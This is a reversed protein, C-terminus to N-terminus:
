HAYSVTRKITINASQCIAKFSSSLFVTDTDILLRRPQHGLSAISSLIEEWASPADSKHKLLVGIIASSTYCVAGLVYRHGCLDPTSTPHLIDLALIHFAHPSDRDRTSRRNIPAVTSKATAYDRCSSM